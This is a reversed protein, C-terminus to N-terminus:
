KKFILQLAGGVNRSNKKVKVPKSSIFNWGKAEMEKIKSDMKEKKQKPFPSDFILLESKEQTYDM